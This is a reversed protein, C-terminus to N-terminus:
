PRLLWCPYVPQINVRIPLPFNGLYSKKLHRDKHTHMYVYTYTCTYKVCMYLHIFTDGYTNTKNKFSLVSIVIIM